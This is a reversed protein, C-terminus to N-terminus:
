MRTSGHSGATQRGTVPDDLTLWYRVAFLSLFFWCIVRRCRQFKGATCVNCVSPFSKLCKWITEWDAVQCNFCTSFFTLQTLNHWTTEHLFKKFFPNRDFRRPIGKSTALFRTSDWHGRWAEEASLSPTSHAIWWQGPGNTQPRVTHNPHSISMTLSTVLAFFVLKWALVGLLWAEEQGQSETTKLEITPIGCPM